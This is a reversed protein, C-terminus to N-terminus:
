GMCSGSPRNRDPTEHPVDTLFRGRAERKAKKLVVFARETIDAATDDTRPGTVGATWSLKVELSHHTYPSALECLLDDMFSEARVPDGEPRFLGFIDKSYRFVVDEPGAFDSLRRAAEELVSDACVRGYRRGVGSFDDIDLLTFLGAGGLAPLRENLEAKGALRTKLGTLMDTKDDEAIRGANKYSELETFMGLLMDPRGKQEDYIVGGNVRIWVYEGNKELFRVEAGFSKVDGVIATEIASQMSDVDSPHIVIGLEEPYRYQLRSHGYLEEINPSFELTRNQLDLEWVVRGMTGSIIRYKEHQERLEAQVACLDSECQRLAEGGDRIKDALTQLVGALEGLRGKSQVPFMAKENGRWVERCVHVMEQLVHDDIQRRRIHRRWLALGAAAALVGLAAGGCHLLIGGRSGSLLFGGYGAVLTAAAFAGVGVFRRWKGVPAPSSASGGQDRLLQELDGVPMPKGTFFGQVWDCGVAKAMSLQEATEIGEFVLIARLRHALSVVSRVIDQTCPDRELDNTFARDLKIVDFPLLRLYSLSSYGTGFDDISMKVGLNRFRRMTAVAKEIDALALRETLEIELLDPAVGYRELLGAVREVIDDRYFRDPSFNVSVPVVECGRDQLDRIQRCVEELVWDDIESIADLEEAPPIFKGGTLLGLEPHRWRVLAETGVIRSTGMHLKPQHFVELQGSTLAGPLDRLLRERELAAAATEADYFAVPERLSTSESLSVVANRDLEAFTSGDWPFVAIGLHLGLATGAAASVAAQTSESLIRSALSQIWGRGQSAAFPALIVFDNGRIRAFLAKGPIVRSCEEVFLQLVRDGRKRGRLTNIRHLNELTLHIFALCEGEERAQDVMEPGSQEYRRKNGIGTLDDTFVMKELRRENHVKETIDTACMFCVPRGDFWEFVSGCIEAWINYRHNHYKFCCRTKQPDKRWVHVPCFDCPTDQRGILHKYCKDGVKLNPELKKIKNNFLMLDHTEADVVYIYADMENICHLALERYQRSRSESRSNLVFVAVVRALTTLFEAEESSWERCCCACDDFGIMGFPRDNHLLLVQLMSRIDQKVLLERVPGEELDAVNPVVWFGDADFRAYYDGIEEFAIHQLMDKCPAIGDNCWEYTNSLYRPDEENEFIYVRSVGFRSGVLELVEGVAKDVSQAGLFCALVRNLLPLTGPFPIVAM